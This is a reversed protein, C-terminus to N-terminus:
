TPHPSTRGHRHDYRRSMSSGTSGIQGHGRLRTVQIAIALGALGVVVGGAVDILWHNATLVVAVSMLLPMAIGALRVWVRSGYGVLAIGVLLDWGLHLSPFAAFRNVLSPPQLARYAYSYEAVTDAFGPGPVLRPPAVPFGVFFLMGIAGSIFFANRILRYGEPVRLFLWVAVAIIVPWHGWIYIWNMITVLWRHHTIAAQLAPEHYLHLWRELSVLDRAHAVAEARSGQTVARVGFYALFGLAVLALERRPQLREPEGAMRGTEAPVARAPMPGAVSDAV